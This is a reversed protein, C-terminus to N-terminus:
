DRDENGLARFSDKIADAIADADNEVRPDLAEGDEGIFWSGVDALLTVTVADDGEGIVFPPSFETRQRISKRVKLVFAEGEVRGKVIVSFRQDGSTGEKFEPDPVAENDEPKHIKFTIREYAGPPVTGVAVTNAQGTLDLNVVFSETKFEYEEGDEANFQVTKVLIKAEDVKVHGASKGVGSTVARFRLETRVGDTADVGSSDCGALGFALLLSALLLRHISSHIKRMPEENQSLLAFRKM